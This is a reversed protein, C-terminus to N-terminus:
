TSSGSGGQSSASCSYLLGAACSLRSRHGWSDAHGSRSRYHRLATQRPAEDIGSGNGFRRTHGGSHTEIRSRASLSLVDTRQAGLAVRIGIEQNRQTVAYAMVGYIGILALLFALAAFIGLLVMNSRRPALSNKLREELTASNYIAVGRDLAM